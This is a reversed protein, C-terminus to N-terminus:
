PSSTTSRTRTSRGRSGCGSKQTYQSYIGRSRRVSKTASRDQEDLARLTPSPEYPTAPGANGFQFSRADHGAGPRARAPPGTHGARGARPHRLRQNAHCRRPIRRDSPRVGTLQPTLRKRSSVTRAPVPRADAARTRQAEAVGTTSRCDPGGFPGRAPLRPDVQAAASERQVDQAGEAHVSADDREHEVDCQRTRLKQAGAPTRAQATPPGRPRHAIRREVALFASAHLEESFTASNSRETIGPVNATRRGTRMACAFSRILKPPVVSPSADPGRRADDREDEIQAGRQHSRRTRHFPVGAGISTASVAPSRTPNTGSCGFGSTRPLQQGNHM